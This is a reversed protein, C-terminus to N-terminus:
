LKFYSHDVEHLDSESAIIRETLAVLLIAEMEIKRGELYKRPKDLMKIYLIGMQVDPLLIPAIRNLPAVSFSSCKERKTSCAASQVNRM